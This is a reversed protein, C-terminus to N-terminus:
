AWILEVIANALSKDRSDHLMVLLIKNKLVGLFQTLNLIIIIKERNRVHPIENKTCSRYM